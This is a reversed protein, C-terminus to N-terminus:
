EARAAAAAANKKKKEEKKKQQKERAAPSIEERSHRAQSIRLLSRFLIFSYYKCDSKEHNKEVERATSIIASNNNGPWKRM